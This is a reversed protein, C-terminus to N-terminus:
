SATAFRRRLRELTKEISRTNAKPAGVLELVRPALATSWVFSETVKTGGDVPELEYRWIHRGAHRWAIRRNEEFEVVRNRILYPLGIRMRMGFRAGLTLRQPGRVAAKVTGSGDFDPHRRPEALLAFIQEPAAHVVVSRSVTRSDSAATTSM